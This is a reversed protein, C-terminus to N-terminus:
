INLNLYDVTNPQYIGSTDSLVAHKNAGKALFFILRKKKEM